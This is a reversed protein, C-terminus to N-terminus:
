PLFRLPSLSPFLFSFGSGTDCLLQVACPTLPRSLNVVPLSAAQSSPSSDKLIHYVCDCIPYPVTDGIRHCVDQFWSYFCSPGWQVVVEGSGGPSEISGAGTTSLKAPNCASTGLSAVRKGPSLSSDLSLTLWLQQRPVQPGRHGIPLFLLGEDHSETLSPPLPTDGFHSIKGSIFFHLLAANLLVHHRPEQKEPDLVQTAGDPFSAPWCLHDSLTPTDLILHPM